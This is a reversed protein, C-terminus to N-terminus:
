FRSNEKERVKTKAAKEGHLRRVMEKRTPEWGQLIMPTPEGKKTYSRLILTIVIASAPSHHKETQGYYPLHKLKLGIMREFIERTAEDGSINNGDAIINSDGLQVVLYHKNWEIIHIGHNQSGNYRDYLFINRHDLKKAKLQTTITRIIRWPEIYQMPTTITEAPDPINNINSAPEWSNHESSYGEWKILYEIIGNRKRKCLIREITYEETDSM